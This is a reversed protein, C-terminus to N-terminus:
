DRSVAKLNERAAQTLPHDPGLAQASDDVTRQFVAIADTLRGATHYAHGLNVLLTLTDPHARGLVAESDALTSEYLPIADALRRASHYASALNGSATLTQPHHPGLVQVSDALTRELVRIADKVRRAAHYAAALNARATLTDPHHPGQVLERDALIREYAPIAERMRGATRYTFALNARAGITDPHRTGQTRERDALIREYLGIADTLQGAARYCEALSARAAITDLHRQGLTRESRAVNRLHLAIADGSRGVGMYATALRTLARLSDAHDPGLLEETDTLAREYIGIADALQGVREYSSALRSSVLRADPHGTGLLQASASAMEQWYSVASRTLGANDLSAGAQLLVPHCGRDWLLDGTAERLSATCDRLAQGLMPASEANPWAELLADAAVRGIQNRHDSAVYSRVAHQIQAHMRITHTASGVDVTLLGLRALVSVASRIQAQRAALASGSGGALYDCASESMLVAAPVGDPNLLATLVLIPWALDAPLLESARDVALSWAVLVALPCAGGWAGALRQRREAFLAGYDRCDLRRDIMVTAAFALSIPFCELNAALDPAGLRLDPDEKLATTLYNVAERHSLPGILKVRGSQVAPVAASSRATVVVRRSASQPWLGDMTAQDTLDDLVVLWPRSTNALWDLLLPAASEANHTIDAINLDAVAQAYWTLVSDRSSASVWILLDVTGARLLETAAALALQTKGTGGSGASASAQGADALVLVDGPPLSAAPGIGTEPRQSYNVALAPVAGSQL